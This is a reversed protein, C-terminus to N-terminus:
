DQSQVARHVVGPAGDRSLEGLVVEVRRGRELLPVDAFITSSAGAGSGSAASPASMGMGGASSIRPTYELVGLRGRDALLSVVVTNVAARGPALEVRVGESTGPAVAVHGLVEGPEGSPQLAQVVVWSPVPTVVQQVVLERWPGTQEAVAISGDQPRVVLGGAADSGGTFAILSLAVVEACLVLVAATGRTPQALIAFLRWSIV